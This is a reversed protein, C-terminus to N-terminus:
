SCKSQEKNHLLIPNEEKLHIIIMKWVQEMAQLFDYALTIGLTREKLADIIKIPLGKFNAIGEITQIARKYPSSYITHVDLQKFQQTIKQADLFGKESLPRNYEDNTYVSHAHRVFYVITM